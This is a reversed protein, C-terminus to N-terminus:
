SGAALPIVTVGGDQAVYLTRGDPAVAIGSNWATGFWPITSLPAQAALRGGDVRVPTVAHSHNMLYLTRGDPSLAIEGGPAYSIAFPGTGFTLAPGEARGTATSIATLTRGSPAAGPFPYVNSAVYLTRGDPSAILAYPDDTLTALTTTAGTAVDIAAVEPPPDGPDYVGTGVYVTGGDPSIALAGSTAHPPVGLARGPQGTVADVPVLGEDDLIYVTRGDPAMVMGRVRPQSVELGGLPTSVHGTALDVAVLSGGGGWFGVVAYLMRGGDAVAVQAPIGGVGIPRGARGTALNVPTVTDGYRPPPGPASFDAAYLTRGDPSIALAIPQDGAGIVRDSYPLNAAFRVDGALIVAMVTVSAILAGKARGSLRSM